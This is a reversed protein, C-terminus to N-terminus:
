DRGLKNFNVIQANIFYARNVAEQQRHAFDFVDRENIIYSFVSALLEVM